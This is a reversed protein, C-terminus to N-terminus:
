TPKFDYLICSLVKRCSLFKIGGLCFVSKREEQDLSKIQCLLNPAFRSFSSLHNHHVTTKAMVIIFTQRELETIEKNNLTKWELLPGSGSPSLMLFGVFPSNVFQYRHPFEFSTGNSVNGKMFKSFLPVQCM